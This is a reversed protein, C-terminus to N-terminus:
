ARGTQQRAADVPGLEYLQEIRLGLLSPTGAEGVPVEAITLLLRRQLDRLAPMPVPAPLMSLAQDAQRRSTNQWMDTGLGGNADDLLGASSPDPAQLPQIM